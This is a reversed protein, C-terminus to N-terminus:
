EKQLKNLEYQRKEELIFNWDLTLHHLLENGALAEMLKGYSSQRVECWCLELQRLLKSNLVFTVLTDFSRDSFCVKTLTLSRIYCQQSM